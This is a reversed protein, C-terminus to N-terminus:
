KKWDKIIIRKNKEDIEIEMKQGEKWKFDRIADIPLTIAYTTGKGQWILNSGIKLLCKVM